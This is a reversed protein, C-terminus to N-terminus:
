LINRREKWTGPYVGRRLPNAEVSVMARRGGHPRQADEEVVHDAAVDGELLVLLYARGLNVEADPQRPLAAVEDLPAQPDLRTGSYGQVPDEGVRPHVDGIVVGGDEVRVVISLDSSDCGGGRRRIWSDIGTDDRIRRSPLDRIQSFPVGGRGGSPVVIDGRFLLLGRLSSRDKPQPQGVGSM